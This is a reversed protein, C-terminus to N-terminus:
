RILILIVTCNICNYVQVIRRKNLLPTTQGVREIARTSDLQSGRKKKKKKTRKGYKNDANLMLPKNIM